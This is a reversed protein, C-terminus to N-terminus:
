NKIKRKSSSPGEREYEISRKARKTKLTSESEVLKEDFDEIDSEDESCDSVFTVEGTDSDDEIEEEDEELEENEGKDKLLGKFSQPNFNYIHEIDEGYTGKKLRDLLESEIATELQAAVLAKAERRIDRKEQKRSLPVIESTKTKVLKRMRILYQFIKTFRQKCKHRLFYPWYILNEDIQELAKKYNRSLKVKEWLRAPFAAREITKMYLYCVGKEEKITAYQSNALPCSQRSCIGTLNYKNTCFKSTQKTRASAKFACFNKNGINSWILEDHQM